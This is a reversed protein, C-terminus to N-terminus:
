GERTRLYVFWYIVGVILAGGIVNGLTVPALNGCLFGAWTLNSPGPAAAPSRLGRRGQRVARVSPLVHERGTSSAPPSSPPLRFSSQSCRTPSSARASASGCPSASSRTASCASCSRRASATSRKRGRRDLGGARRGRRRRARVAHRAYLLAATAIAGVFNGVYVIAWNRLLGRDLRPPEGLGHRDPQQRHLARRRRRRRPATRPLVHSRRAVALRRLASRRRGNDGDNRLRRGHRHVRRGARLAHVDDGALGAKTVGVEEAKRAMSPPPLADLGVTTLQEAAM